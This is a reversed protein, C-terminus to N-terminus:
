SPMETPISLKGLLKFYGLLSKLLPFKLLFSTLWYPLM